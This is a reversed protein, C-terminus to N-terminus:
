ELSRRTLAQRYAQINAKVLRELKRRIAASGPDNLLNNQLLSDATYKYLFSGKGREPDYGYIYDSAIIQYNAGAKNVVYRDAEAISTDLLDRGFGAYRGKYGLLDLVTPTIDVQGAVTPRLSGTDHAPDYIFIPIACSYVHSYPIRGDAPNLYHDACFVFLTNRFWPLHRCTDFFRRFALDTYSIARQAPTKDPFNFQKRYEAPLTYPPHATITFFVGLFPQQEATLMRAGFQLFPEDFIGWNGDYFRDDDFDERWFTHDLGAMHAIKGFGFHDRNAGMLFNTTYGDRKLINGLSNLPTNAYASYFFPKDMLSPLGGLIAVIGQNSSYGNAFSHPFFLSGAILSDFFPTNAKMPDGPMVYCRSFSELIFVIVNKKQFGQEPRSPSVIHTTPLIHALEDGSFYGVPRLEHYQHAFSYCWTLFSNQAIPLVGPSVSLLPTAPIIPRGPMGTSLFLLSCGILQKVLLGTPAPRSDQRMRSGPLLRFSIIIVIVILVIFVGLIPWYGTLISKFSSLSDGLVSGLDLNVRHLGFRFYGIDICNFALALSNGVIFFARAAIIMPQRIDPRRIWALSLLLVITPLNVLLLSVWDQQLGRIFIWELERPFAGPFMSRNYYWFWCRLLFHFGLLVIVLLLIRKAM